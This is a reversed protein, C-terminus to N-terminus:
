QTRELGECVIVLKEVPLNSIPDPALSEIRSPWCNSGIWVAVTAGTQDFATVTTNARASEVLGDEVLKRWDALDTNTTLGRETTIDLYTLRGPLKRIITNGFEDVVKQEITESESGIGAAGTTFTTFHGEVEIGVYSQAHGPRAVSMLALAFISPLAVTMLVRRTTEM